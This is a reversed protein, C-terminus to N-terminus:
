NKEEVLYGEESVFIDKTESLRSIFLEEFNEREIDWLAQLAYGRYSPDVECLGACYRSFPFIYWYRGYVESFSLYEM